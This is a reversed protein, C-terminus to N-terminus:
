PTVHEPLFILIHLSEHIDFPGKSFLIHLIDVKEQAVGIINKLTDAKTQNDVTEYIVREISSHSEPTLRFILGALKIICTEQDWGFQQLFM